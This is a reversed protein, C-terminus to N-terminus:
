LLKVWQYIFSFLAFSGATLLAAKGGSLRYEGSLGLKYRGVWVLCVPILGSLLADGFGGSIELCDILANPYFIALLLSPGISLVTVMTQTLHLSMGKFFDRIFDFLAISLGMYSTAIALFAFGDTFVKLFTGNFYAKLPVTISANALLTEELGNKGEFPVMGHIMLLWLGYAAFPISTGILISKRLSAHDYNMYSCLTPIIMQHSFAALILPISSIGALIPAPRSLLEFQMMPLGKGILILYFFIMGIMLYSNIKGVFATGLCVIAGFILTFLVCSQDYSINIGTWYQMWESILAAGGATYAILSAYNMFLYISLSLFKGWRGLIANTLSSFHTNNKMWLTSEVLLLSTFTMFIWCILLSLFSPFFGAQATQVPMALIGGGICTGAVLLSASWHSKQSLSDSQTLTTM